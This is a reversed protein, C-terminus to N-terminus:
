GLHPKAHLLGLCGHQGFANSGRMAVWEWDRLFHYRSGATSHITRYLWVAARSLLKLMFFSRSICNKLQLQLKATETKWLRTGLTANRFMVKQKATVFHILKSNTQHETHVQIPSFATTVAVWSLNSSMLIQRKVKVLSCFGRQLNGDVRLVVSIFCLFVAPGSVGRPFPCLASFSGTISPPFSAILM